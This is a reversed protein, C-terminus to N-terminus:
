ISVFGVVYVKSIQEESTLHGDPMFGYNVFYHAEIRGIASIILSHGLKERV